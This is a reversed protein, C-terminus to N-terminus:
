HFENTSWVFRIGKIDETTFNVDRLTGEENDFVTKDLGNLCEEESSGIPKHLSLPSMDQSLYLWIRLSKPEATVNVQVYAPEFRDSHTESVLVPYTDRLTHIM